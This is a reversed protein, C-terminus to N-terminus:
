QWRNAGCFVLVKPSVGGDDYVSIGISAGIRIEHGEITMPANILEILREAPIVADEAKDIAMLLIAFEDGGLRAVTDVERCVATM